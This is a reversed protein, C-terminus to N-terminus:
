NSNSKSEETIITELPSVKRKKSPDEKDRHSTGEGKKQQMDKGEVEEGDGGEDPSISATRISANEVDHVEEAKKTKSPGLTDLM